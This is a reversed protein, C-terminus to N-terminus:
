GGGLSVRSIDLPVLPSLIVFTVLHALMYFVVISLVTWKLKGSRRQRYIDILQSLAMALGICVAGVAPYFYYIYTVRDTILTAPIWLLYTGFFWATGFLAAENRKFARYVMYAFSPVILVWVAPSIAGTYSPTYWYPMPKYSFLWEWPHSRYEHTVTAFTLNGSLNMMMKTRSLPDVIDSTDQVIAFDFVIMLLVFALLASLFILAFWRFREPRSFIWHVIMVPLALAGNLKTLASLGTAIGSTIYRRNLYLLFSGLMFTLYYVDLMAVSAHIFTMNELALLFAAISSALPSMNLRRCIFYFLVISASGFIIPFFRWGWPNDGFIEIGAVFFLKGLPPHELRLTEHKEIINRADKIYHQEDLILESTSSIIVFHIVLTFVLILCLWIYEWKFVLLFIRKM